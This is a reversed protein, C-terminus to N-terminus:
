SRQPPHSREVSRGGDPASSRRLRRAAASNCRRSRPAAGRSGPRPAARVASRTSRASRPPRASARARARRQPGSAPARAPQARV